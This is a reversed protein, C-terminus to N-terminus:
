ELMGHAASGFPVSVKKGKLDSLQYYPSDKHVVIGNGAGDANYAILAILRSKARWPATTSTASSSAARAAATTASM